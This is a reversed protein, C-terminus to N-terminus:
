RKISYMHTVWKQSLVLAPHNEPLVRNQVTVVHEMLKVAEEIQGNELHATALGQQSLRDPHDEALIQSRIAVVMQLLKVAEEIQGNELYARALEHQSVLRNPHDEALTQSRIAVVTQLLEVAEGIQGNELYATALLHQYGLQYSPDDPLTQTAGMRQLLEVAERSSGDALLRNGVRHGLRYHEYNYKEADENERLVRLAHPLYQRWLRRNEWDGTPFIKSLHVVVKRLSAGKPHNEVWRRTMLHVLSHMDFVKNGRETLFGVGSITRIAQDIRWDSGLHPLISRPIARPEIYAVFSLIEMAFPDAKCIHDFSRLWTTAVDSQSGRSGTNDRYKSSLLKIKDGDTKRYMHLYDEISKENKNLYEAVQAIALPLYTLEKLLESVIDQNKLQGKQVLSKELLDVGEQRSMEQLDLVDADAVNFALGRSRTTFLIRGTEIQPLYDHISDPREESGFLIDEDDANDVILLWKGADKSGLYTRVSAKPNENNSRQLGAAKIIEDCAQEFSDHSDASVWLVSYEPMNKKTWFAVQLAVQTKGIGGLGHVAVRQCDDQTFLMQTLKQIVELRGTFRKRKLLPVMFLPQGTDFCGPQTLAARRDLTATECEANSSKNHNRWALLAQHALEKLKECVKDYEHDEPGFKVMNSHTRAVACIHEPGDEWSRCHTASARTVLVSLPGTM